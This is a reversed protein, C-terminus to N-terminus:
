PMTREETKEAEATEAEAVKQEPEATVEEEAENAVEQKKSKEVNNKAEEATRAINITIDAILGAYVRIKATCLGTEKIAKVLVIQSKKINAGFTETLHEAIDKPMVSGYLRGEDSSHRLLVLTKNNVKDYTLQAKEKAKQNNALIEEKKDEYYKKNKETARLAKKQPILYNRAFGNKVNVVKGVEGLKEVQEILIVQM